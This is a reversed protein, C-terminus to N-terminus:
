HALMQHLAIPHRSQVIQEREERERQAHKDCLLDTVAVFCGDAQMPPLNDDGDFKNQEQKDAENGCLVVDNCGSQYGEGAGHLHLGEALYVAVSIGAGHADAIQAASGLAQGNVQAVFPRLRQALRQM